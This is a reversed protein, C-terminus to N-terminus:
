QDANPDTPGPSASPDIGEATMARGLADDLRDQAEGYAAWDGEEMATQSDEMADAADSLASDLDTGGSPATTEGDAPQEEEAAERQLAPLVDADALTRLRVPGAANMVNM